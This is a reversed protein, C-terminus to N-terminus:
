KRQREWSCSLAIIVFLSFMERRVQCADKTRKCTLSFSFPFVYENYSHLIDIHERQLRVIEKSTLEGLGLKAILLTRTHMLCALKYDAFSSSRPSYYYTEGQVQKSSVISALSAPIPPSNLPLLMPAGDTYFIPEFAKPDLNSSSM